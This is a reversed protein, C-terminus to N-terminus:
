RPVMAHCCNALAEDFSDATTVRFGKAICEFTSDHFGLIFHHFGDLADSRQRPHDANMTRIDSIWGSNVVEGAAYHGIASLGARWLRHGHLAEDNPPGLTAAMCEVWEVVKVDDTVSGRFALHCANASQLLIPEPAGADWAVGIELAKVHEATM